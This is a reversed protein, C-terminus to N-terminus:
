KAASLQGTTPQFNGHGTVTSAAYKVSRPPGGDELQIVVARDSHEWQVPPSGISLALGSLVTCFIFFLCHQTPKTRCLAEKHYLPTIHRHRFLIM